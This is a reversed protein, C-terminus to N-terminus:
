GGVKNVEVNSIIKSVPIDHSEIPIDSVIQSEFALSLTNGQYNALFRDYYGGGFGLRYGTKSFALGPVIVLDIENPKVKVTESVIPELLGYYVSELQSFQTLERFDLVRSKPACKPIVIRKGQEWAKRIIQWTDVEPMKSMTIAITSAMEWYEDLYLRQAIQYSLHEYEPLNLASLEKRVMKRFEKKAEM